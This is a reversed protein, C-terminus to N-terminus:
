RILELRFRNRQPVPSGETTITTILHLHFVWDFKHGREVHIAYEDDLSELLPETAIFETPSVVIELADDRGKSISIDKIYPVAGMDSSISAKDDFILSPRTNRALKKLFEPINIKAEIRSDLYLNFGYYLPVVIVVAILVNLIQSLM